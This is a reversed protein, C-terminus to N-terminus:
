SKLWEELEKNSTSKNIKQKNNSLAYEYIPNSNISKATLYHYLDVLNLLNLTNVTHAMKLLYNKNFNGNTKFLSYDIMLNILQDNLFYTNRLKNITETEEVTLPTKKIVFYYHESNLSKYSDFIQSLNTEDLRKLFMQANRNIKVQKFVNINNFENIHKKLNVQLLDYDVVYEHNVSEIVSNYICHEIENINLSYTNFYFEILQKVHDPIIISQHTKNIINAYLQDFNFQYIQSLKQDKFVQDFNSSINVYDNSLHNNNYVYEMKEYNQQGIAKLLLHRFKQNNIFDNFSLPEILEFCYNNTKNDVYTKILGIAELLGRNSIYQKNSLNLNKILSNLDTFKVGIQLNKESENYLYIYMSTASAGIIPSYLDYLSKYNICFDYKKTIVFIVDKLM